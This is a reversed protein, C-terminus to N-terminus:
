IHKAGKRRPRARRVTSDHWDTWSKVLADNCLEAPEWSPRYDEGKPGRAWHVFYWTRGDKKVMKRSIKTASYEEEEAVTKCDENDTNSALASERESEDNVKTKAVKIPATNLFVESVSKSENKGITPAEILRDPKIITRTGRRLTVPYKSSVLISAEPRVSPMAVHGVKPSAVKDVVGMAQAQPDLDCSSVVNKVETQVDSISMKPSTEDANQPIAVVPIGLAVLSEDRLYAKKIQTVNVPARVALRGTIPDELVVNYGINDVSRIRLPGVYAADLKRNQGIDFHMVRKFVLEGAEYNALRKLKSDYIEKDANQVNKRNEDAVDGIVKLNAKLEGLYEKLTNNSGAAPELYKMDIPMLLPRGNVMEFPSLAQRSGTSGRMAMLVLPLRKDWQDNDGQLTNRLLRSLSQNCREVMGMSESAYPSSLCRKVGLTSLFQTMANSVHAQSRDFQIIRPTGFQSIAELLAQVISSATENYMPIAFPYGSAHDIITLIKTFGTQSKVLPSFVDISWREAVRMGDLAIPRLPTKPLHNNVKKLQCCLCYKIASRIYNYMQPFWYHRSMSLYVREVGLHCLAQAHYGQVLENRLSVPIVINELIPELEKVKNNNITLHYLVGKDDLFYEPSTISIQVALKADAVDSLDNTELYRIIPGLEPCARQLKHMDHRHIEVTYHGPDNLANFGLQKHAQESTEHSEVEDHLLDDDAERVEDDTYLLTWCVMHPEPLKVVQSLSCASEPSTKGVKANIM